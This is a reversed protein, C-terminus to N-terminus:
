KIMESSPSPPPPLPRTRTDMGAPGICVDVPDHVLVMYVTGMCLFAKSLMRASREATTIEGCEEIRMCRTEDHPCQTLVAFLVEKTQCSANSTSGGEEGFLHFFHFKSFPLNRHAM